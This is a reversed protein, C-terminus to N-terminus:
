LVTGDYDVERFGWMGLKYLASHERMYVLRSVILGQFKELAREYPINRSNYDAAIKVAENRSRTYSMVLKIFRKQTM